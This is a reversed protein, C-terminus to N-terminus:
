KIKKWTKGKKEEILNCECNFRQQTRPEFWFLSTCRAERQGQINRRNEKM